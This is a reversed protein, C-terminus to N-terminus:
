TVQDRPEPREYSALPAKTRPDVPAKLCATVLVNTRHPDAM